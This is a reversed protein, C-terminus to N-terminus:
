FRLRTGLLFSTGPMPYGEEEQYDRDFINNVTLTLDAFKTVKYSINTNATFYGKLFASNPENTYRKTLYRGSLYCNLKDNFKYNLAGKYQHRPRYELWKNTTTDTASLRTYNFNLKLDKNFQYNLSTEVGKTLARNVNSPSWDGASDQSWHILDEFKNHFYTVDTEIAGFLFMGIGIEKSTAREPKLNPNGEVIYGWDQRPFYLDNFTPTRFSKAILGHTKIKDLLWWSFSASPSTKNGFNSYDDLRVGGKLVLDDFLDFETEAYVAKFNYKHKSTTSSNLKNEQGSIGISTRFIDFWMQSLQLDAGYVKTQHTDKDHVPSLSNIFELRDLNQYVKLLVKSGEWCSGEWTLDLYDKWQEERDDLDENTIKHPTGLESAAYGTELTIRNDENVDYGLKLFHNHQQYDSNNRHGDSEIYSSSIFYDWDGIKWGHAFDLTGTFHSGSKMDLETFMKEKGSKTIINIVGGIANAGYISSAPGKVVEIREINNLPIQNHDAVGDRPTNIPRGNVLTIIQSNSAGRMHVSKTSGFFGYNVVKVSPLNEILQSVEIAGSNGIEEEDVVSINVSSNRYYQMFKSPTVIIKKLDFMPRSSKSEEAQCLEGIFSLFLCVGICFVLKKMMMM